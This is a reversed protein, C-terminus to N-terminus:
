LGDRVAPRKYASLNRLQVELEAMNNNSSTTREDYSSKNEHYVLDFTVDGTARMKM